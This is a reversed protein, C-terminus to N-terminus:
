PVVTLPDDDIGLWLYFRSGSIMENCIETIRGEGVDRM